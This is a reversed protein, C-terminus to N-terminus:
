LTVEGNNTTNIKNKNNIFKIKYWGLVVNEHIIFSIFTSTIMNITDEENINNATNIIILYILISYLPEFEYVTYSM